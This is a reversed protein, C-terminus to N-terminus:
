GKAFGFLRPRKRVGAGVDAVAPTPVELPVLRSVLERISRSVEAEPNATVFPAGRNVSGDVVKPDHSIELAFPYRLHSAVAEKDVDSSADSHNLTLLIRDPEVNLSEMVKLTLKTDKIAPINLAAVLIVRTALEMAELNLEDLHSATDVVIFDFTHQLEQM